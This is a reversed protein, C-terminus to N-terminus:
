SSSRTWPSSRKSSSARRGANPLQVRDRGTSPLDLHSTLYAVFRERRRSIHLDRQVRHRRQVAAHTRCHGLGDVARSHREFEGPGCRREAASGVAAAHQSGALLGVRGFQSCQAQSAPRGSVRVFKSSQPAGQQLSAQESLLTNVFRMPAVVRLCGCRDASKRPSLRELRITVARQSCAM